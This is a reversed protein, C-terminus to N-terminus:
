ECMARFVQAGGLEQSNHEANALPCKLFAHETLISRRERTARYVGTHEAVGVTSKRPGRSVRAKFGHHEDQM